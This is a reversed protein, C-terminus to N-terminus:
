NSALGVCDVEVSFDDLNWDSGNCELHCDGSSENKNELITWDWGSVFVNIVVFFIENRIWPM